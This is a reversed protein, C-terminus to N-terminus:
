GVVPRRATFARGPLAERRPVSPCTARVCALVGPATQGRVHHFAASVVDDLVIAPRTDEDVFVIGVNNLEIGAVHRLYCGDAPLVGVICPEPYNAAREPVDYPDVRPGTSLVFFTNVYRPTQQIADDLTRGGRFVIRYQEAQRGRHSSRPHRRHDRANAPGRLRSGLRLFLPPNSTDHMTIDNIVVDEVLGGDVSEPAIGRCRDFVVNSVAVNRFGGDSETGFKIRGISPERDDALPTDRTYTGAAVSGIDYGSLLCNTVTVGVVDCAYGLAFSSKFVIADDNPSNV